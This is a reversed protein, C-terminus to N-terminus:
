YNRRLTAVPPHTVVSRTALLGASGVLLAGGLIGALWVAPDPSYDLNFVERALFFGAVSAGTAALLGALLGLVTFEAALGQFVVRRSAGLTRLMASEYRREDRTAQVAALLVMLGAALTFGFVYEVALTAKDMVERVQSLLAEIDIITVEPFERVLDVLAPRQDPGLHVSTILTGTVDDLVGPSFVVFFNPRFSDWQVERLSTVRATVSEGAVDYELEDGLQLGLLEAYEREVSVEARGSRPADWWRGAVLRNDARLREAWTLNAEREVFGRARESGFDMDEVPLENIRVLRARIMPVLETAPLGRESFFRSVAEGEDPRINIMFYNPADRPLSAKWEDLLDDRVLLLLLLVMLGLGFAVLQAISERGRRAINALGYRWAVSARSRFPALSRVMLAGAVGLLAFTGGIGAALYAVLRADKVLWLLLGLVAAVAFGYVVAYRLPPPELNRRLVRAPPVRKLQLMPPLAFGTLVVVSTGLGLWAVDATPPPLDGRVLDRLLWELGFQALLGLLTGISGTVLAVAVLQTLTQRLVLGQSAGMCKQLAASDLHRQAYRRATMAVAIAALLVSAMSALSLFRGARDSSARIQPSADEVSQLREGPRITAELYDRFNEVPGSEGAFLLARRVRSGPQVLETKGLDKLNILLTASLDAFGSGQDPRYDLVQTVTVTHAGVGLKSGVPVGLRALLRSDAWAEGPGPIGDVARAPEFPADAIKLRGRLPYGESAARLAVLSSEDGAFVVSPMSVIRATRLGRRAAEEEYAPDMERASELRLDAGLVESAQREIAGAIRSTFFGVATISAVAVILALVLVVVEGSKLDRLLSRLALRLTRM